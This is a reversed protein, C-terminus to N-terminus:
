LSCANGGPTEQNKLRHHFEYLATRNSDWKLKARAEEYPLWLYETHERSLRIEGKCDFGFSYEPLVYTDEPWRYLHRKPFHEAPISCVSQLPIIDDATVGGEEDIERIAAQLPTEDDEGGGAIFQWDDSDARRLICYLPRGDVMRYPIALIQFAARMM